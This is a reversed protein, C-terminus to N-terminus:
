VYIRFKKIQRFDSKKMYWCWKDAFSEGQSDQVKWMDWMDAIIAFNHGKDWLFPNIYPTHRVADFDMKGTWAAIYHGKKLWFDVWEATSIVLFNSIKKDSILTQAVSQLWIEKTALM